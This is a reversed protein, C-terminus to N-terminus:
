RTSVDSLIAAWRDVAHELSYGAALARGRAGQDALRTGNTTALTTLAAALAV